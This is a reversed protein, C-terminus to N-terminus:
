DALVEKIKRVYADHDENYSIVSRFEGHRDMLYVVATHDMTYGGDSTPVKAYYVRFEKAVAAVEEPTGTLGVVKATFNSIYDKMVSQTDREPDITVFLTTFDKANGGIADTAQSIDSLTTPCVDPCHTYGFFVAYPKGSMVASDFKAGDQDTLHIPGGIAIGGTAEPGQRNVYLYTLAAASIAAAAILIVLLRRVLTM